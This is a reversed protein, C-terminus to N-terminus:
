RRTRRFGPLQQSHFRMPPSYTQADEDQKLQALRAALGRDTVLDDFGRGAVEDIRQEALARVAPWDLTQDALIEMHVTRDWGIVGKIQIALKVQNFDGCKWAGAECRLEYGHAHVRAQWIPMGGKVQGVSKWAYRCGEPIVDQRLGLTNLGILAMARACSGAEEADGARMSRKLEVHLDELRKAAPPSMTANM